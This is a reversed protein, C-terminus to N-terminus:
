SSNYDFCIRTNTNKDTFPAKQIKVGTKNDFFYAKDHIQIMFVKGNTAFSAGEIFSIANNERMFPVFDENKYLTFERM